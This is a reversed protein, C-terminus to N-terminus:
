ADKELSGPTVTESEKLQKSVADFLRADRQKKEDSRRRLSGMVVRLRPNKSLRLSNRQLFQWYLPTMPCDKKPNFACGQCYDSMKSVYGSGSVYPKTVMLDSLAFTGMGLVNPEVVWEFADEFGVWFWDTLERPSVDLLTAWNSLIMLRNIHHSYADEWVEAIANDLCAFGSPRQGWFAPPLSRAAGLASPSPIDDGSNLEPMGDYPAPLKRFGETQEHIHHMFERWGLVQRIFGEKSNLPVDMAAVEGVVRAPLLRHLNLLAAVRSHFLQRERVAMADEYPGFHVMCEAKFWAWTAEIQALSAPIRHPKLQGPHHGFQSEVLQCVERTIGDVEYSLVTPAAPQGRWPQRNDADHSWSGGQPKGADDLLVGYRKRVQRYFADMRWTKKGRVAARFDAEETLWGRHPHEVIQGEHRLAALGERLEREAPRMMELPGLEGCVERLQEHYDAEGVLYRVAVGRRAQELAFHRQSSLVYALKQKHYPRRRAKTLSEVLVIGLEKAPVDALPELKDSLQDYPVYFWRRRLRRANIKKLQEFFTSTMSRGKCALM